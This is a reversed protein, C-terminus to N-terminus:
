FSVTVGLTYTEINLPSTDAGFPWTMNNKRLTKFGYALGNRMLFNMVPVAKPSSKGVAKVFASVLGGAIGEIASSGAWKWFLHRPYVQDWTYAANLSVSGLRVDVGARMTEGYRVASGFDNLNQGDPLAPARTVDLITWGNNSGNIFYIGSPSDQSAYGWANIDEFGFRWLGLTANTTGASDAALGHWLYIGDRKFRRIGDAVASKKTKETGFSLGFSTVPEIDAQMGERSLMSQGGWLMVYPAGSVVDLNLETDLDFLSTTDIGPKVTDAPQAQVTAASLVLAVVATMFASCSSNMCIRRNMPHTKAGLVCPVNRQNGSTSIKKISSCRRPISRAAVSQVITESKRCWVSARPRARAKVANHRIAAVLVAEVAARVQLVSDAAHVVASDPGAAHRCWATLRVRNFRTMRCARRNGKRSDKRVSGRLVSAKRAGSSVAVAIGDRVVEAHMPVAASTAAVVDIVADTEGIMAAAVATTVSVVAHSNTTSSRAEAEVHRADSQRKIASCRRTRCRSSSTTHRSNGSRSCGHLIRHVRSIAVIEPMVGGVLDAVKTVVTMAIEGVAHVIAAGRWAVLSSTVDIEAERSNIAGTWAVRSNIADTEAVLSSTVDIEAERSNIVDTEAELSNTADTGAERSNTAGTRTVHSNTANTRVSTEATVDTGDAAAVDIMAIVDVNARRVSVMHPNAKRFM